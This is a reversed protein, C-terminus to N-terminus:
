PTEERPQHTSAGTPAETRSLSAKPVNRLVKSGAEIWQDLAVLARAWEEPTIESPWSGRYAVRWARWKGTVFYCPRKIVIRKDGAHAFLRRALQGDGGLDIEAFARWGSGTLAAPRNATNQAAWADIEAWASM